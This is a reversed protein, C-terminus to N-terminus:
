SPQRVNDRKRRAWMVAAVILALLGIPLFWVRLTTASQTLPQAAKPHQPPLGWARLNVTIVPNAQAWGSHLVHAGEVDRVHQGGHTYMVPGAKAYPYFDSRVEFTQHPHLEKRMTWTITYRPGLPGKPRLSHELGLLTEFLRTESALLNLNADTTGGPMTPDGFKLPTPLGPGTMRAAQPMAGKAQVSGVIALILVAVVLTTLLRKM